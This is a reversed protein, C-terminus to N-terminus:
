NPKSLLPKAPAAEEAPLEGQTVVDDSSLHAVLEADLQPPAIQPVEAKQEVPAATTPQRRGPKQFKLRALKPNSIETTTILRPKPVSSQSPKAKIKADLEAKLQPNEQLLDLISVQQILPKGQPPPPPPPPPHPGHAAALALCVLLLFLRLATM